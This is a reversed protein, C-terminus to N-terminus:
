KAPADVVLLPLMARLTKRGIGKVRLLDTPQRFRGLRKRVELIAQARKPGVRPLKMLEDATAENLVVKGDATVGVGPAKDPNAVAASADPRPGSPAGAPPASPPAASTSAPAATAVPIGAGSLTGTAGIAALAVMGAGIALGRAVVPAWTSERARQIARALVGARGAPAADGGDISAGRAPTPLRAPDNSADM